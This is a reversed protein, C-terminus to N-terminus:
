HREQISLVLVSHPVQSTAEGTGLVSPYNSSDVNFSVYNAEAWQDLRDLNRQLAKRGEPLDTSGDLKTRDASNNLTCEIGKDLDDIFINFLVLRLVSRHPVGSM